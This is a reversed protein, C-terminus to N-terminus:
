EDDEGDDDPADDDPPEEPPAPPELPLEAQSGYHQVEIELQCDGNMHGFLALIDDDLDPTTQITLACQTKGSFMPTLRIKSLKAADLTLTTKGQLTDFDLRVTAGEIKGALALSKLLPIAPDGAQAVQGAAVEPYRFIRQAADPSKLLDCLDVPDIVFTVPIDLAAVDNDGHRETRTNISGGIHAPRADFKLM